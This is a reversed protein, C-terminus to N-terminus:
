WGMDLGYALPAVLVDGSIGKADRPGLRKSRKAGIRYGLQLQKTGRWVRSGARFSLASM